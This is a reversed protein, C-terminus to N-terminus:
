LFVCILGLIEILVNLHLLEDMDVGSIRSIISILFTNLFPLIQLIAVLFDKSVRPLVIKQLLLLVVHLPHKFGFNPLKQSLKLHLSLIILLVLSGDLVRRM